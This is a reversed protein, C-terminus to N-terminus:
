TEFSYGHSFRGFLDLTPEANWPNYNQLPLKNVRKGEHEKQALIPNMM